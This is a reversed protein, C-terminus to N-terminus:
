VVTTISITFYTSKSKVYKDTQEPSTMPKIKQHGSKPIKSYRTILTIKPYSNM